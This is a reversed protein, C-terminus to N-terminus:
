SAATGNGDEKGHIPRTFGRVYSRSRITFLAAYFCLAAVLLFGAVDALLGESATSVVWVSAGTIIIVIVTLRNITLKNQM